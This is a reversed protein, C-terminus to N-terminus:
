VVGAVVGYPIRTFALICVCGAEISTHSSLDMPFGGLRGASPRRHADGRAPKWKGASVEWISEGTKPDVYYKKGSEPDEYPVAPAPDEWQTENTVENWFYERVAAKCSPRQSCASASLGLDSCSKIGDPHISM